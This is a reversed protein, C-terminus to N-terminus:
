HLHKLHIMSKGVSIFHSTLFVYKMYELVFSWDVYTNLNENFRIHHARVIATRFIINCASQKRLFSNINGKANFYEVRVRDLDVFQPRQTTFSHIPAILGDTNNFKELYFTIAYSALEDDADLFM